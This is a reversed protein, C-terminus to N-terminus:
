RKAFACRFILHNEDEEENGCVVCIPDGTSLRRALTAAFPLGRQVVKWLFIRVRPQMLGKKRISAWIEERQVGGQVGLDQGKTMQKYAKTVSYQGNAALTFILRDDGRGEALPKVSSIIRVADLHGFNDILQQVDWANHGEEKLDKIMLKSQNRNTPRHNIAGEFWPQGFAHCNEGGGVNWMVMPLLKDKIENSSELLDLM